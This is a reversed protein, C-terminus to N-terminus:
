SWCINAPSTSYTKNSKNNNSRSMKTICKPVKNITSRLLDTIKKYEM